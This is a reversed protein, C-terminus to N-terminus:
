GIHFIRVTSNRTLREVASRLNRIAKIPINAVARRQNQRDDAKVSDDTLEDVLSRLSIPMRMAKPACIRSMM